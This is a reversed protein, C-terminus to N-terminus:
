RSGKSAAKRPVRSRLAMEARKVTWPLGNITKVVVKCRAKYADVDAQEFRVADGFRYSVLEGRRALDYVKSTSLGLLVGVAKADIM